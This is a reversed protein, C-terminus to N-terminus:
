YKQPPYTWKQSKKEIKVLFKKKNPKANKSEHARFLGFVDGFVSAPCRVGSRRM